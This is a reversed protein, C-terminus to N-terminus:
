QLNWILELEPLTVLGNIQNVMGVISVYYVGDAQYYHDVQTGATVVDFNGDGWFVTFLPSPNFQMHLQRSNQVDNAIFKYVRKLPEPEVLKINFRGVQVSANWRSERNLNVGAAPYCYYLLPKGPDYEVRLERLNPKAFLNLLTQNAKNMFDIRSTARIWCELEIERIDYIPNSLDVVEGHRNPWSTKLVDKLKPLNFLGSVRSVNVGLSGLEQNDIYYRIM